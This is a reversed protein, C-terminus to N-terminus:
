LIRVPLWRAPWCGCTGARDAAHRPPRILRCKPADPLPHCAPHPSGPVHGGGTGRGARLDQWARAEDWLTALEATEEGVRARSRSVRQQKLAPALPESHAADWRLPRCAAAPRRSGATHAAAAAGLAWGAGRRTGVGLAWSDRTTAGSPAGCGCCLDLLRRLRRQHQQELRALRAADPGCQRLRGSLQRLLGDRAHLRGRLVRLVARVADRHAKKM